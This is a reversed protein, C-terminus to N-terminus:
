ISPGTIVSIIQLLLLVNEAGVVAAGAGVVAAGAGVVAAGVGRWRGGRLSCQSFRGRWRVWGVLMVIVEKEGELEQRGQGCRRGRGDGRGRGHGRGQQGTWRGM